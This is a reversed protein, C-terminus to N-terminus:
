GEVPAGFPAVWDYNVSPYIIESVVPEDTTEELEIPPLPEPELEVFKQNIQELQEETFKM